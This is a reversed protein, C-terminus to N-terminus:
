SAPAPAAVGATTRSRGTSPTGGDRRWLTLSVAVFWLFGVYRGVPILLTAPEAVLSLLSSVSAVSLALGSWAVWAPLARSVLATRSVQWLVVGLTGIAPAAGTIFALDMLARSVSLDAATGLLSLVWGASASLVLLVGSATGAARVVGARVPTGHRGVFESLWPVFALLALASLLQFLAGVQLSRHLAAPDALLYKRVVDDSSYPTAFPGSPATIGSIVLSVVFLLVYLIGSLAGTSSRRPSTFSSM